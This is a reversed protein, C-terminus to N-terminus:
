GEDPACRMWCSPPLSPVSPMPYDPRGPHQRQTQEVAAAAQMARHPHSSSSIVAESRAPREACSDPSRPGGKTKNHQQLAAETWTAKGGGAREVNAAEAKRLKKVNSMLWDSVGVLLPHCSHERKIAGCLPASLAKGDAKRKGLQTVRVSRFHSLVARFRGCCRLVTSPAYRAGSRKLPPPRTRSGNKYCTHLRVARACLRSPQATHAKPACSAVRRAARSASRVIRVCPEKRNKESNGSLHALSRSCCRRRRGCRGGGSLQCRSCRRRTTGGM